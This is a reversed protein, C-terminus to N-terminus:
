QFLDDAYLIVQLEKSHSNEEVKSFSILSLHISSKTKTLEVFDHKKKSLSEMQKETLSFPADYYKIEFLNTIDDKRELIMDIQSGFIGKEAEKKCAFPYASTYVGSIGLAKKISKMHLFCLREFALGKWTNMLPTNIQNEWFHDDSIKKTLFYFHFITFPDILQFIIEKKKSKLPAYERIFGCNILDELKKTFNGNEEQKAESLIERRTLGNKKKSLAEIIKLYGDPNSFLSSFIYRLENKLPANNEFFCKDIFQPISQGKEIYNWYYPVGGIVMYAEIIQKRSLGLRRYSCYQECESLSFPELFIQTTIRNYLGGKSHIINNIIWSTASSCIVLMIDKRASAWGNWFNELARIFDSKKTYMWAIEDFFLVKKKANSNKIYCKLEEFADFWNNIKENKVYGNEHLSNMFSHLQEKTTGGYIGAHRFLLKDGLTENILFTKGIRRRGYIAIFSSEESKYNNILTKIENTRGIIM